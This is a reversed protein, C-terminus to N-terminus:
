KFMYYSEPVVNIEEDGVYENVIQASTAGAVGVNNVASPIIFGVCSEQDREEQPTDHLEDNKLTKRTYAEVSGHGTVINAPVSM